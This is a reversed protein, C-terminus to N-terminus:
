PNRFSHEPARAFFTGETTSESKREHGLRKGKACGWPPVHAARPLALPTPKTGSHIRALGDRDHKVRAPFRVLTGISAALKRGAFATILLQEGRGRAEALCGNEDALFVKETKWCRRQEKM